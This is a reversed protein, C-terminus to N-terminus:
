KYKGLLTGAMMMYSINHKKFVREILISLLNMYIAHECRTLRRPMLPTSRWKSYSYPIYGYTHDIDIPITLTQEVRIRQDIQRCYREYRYEDTLNSLEHNHPVVYSQYLIISFPVYIFVIVIILYIYRYNSSCIRTFLIMVRKKLADV